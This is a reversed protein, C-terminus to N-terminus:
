QPYSISGQFPLHHPKTSVYAAVDQYSQAAAVDIGAMSAYSMSLSSLDDDNYYDQKVPPITMSPVIHQYGQHPPPLYQACLPADMGGSPMSCYSATQPSTSYSLGETTSMSAYSSSFQPPSTFQHSFMAPDDSPLVYQQSLFGPLRDRWIEDSTSRQRQDGLQTADDSFVSEAQALEEQM